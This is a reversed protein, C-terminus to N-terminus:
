ARVFSEPQSEGSHQRLNCHVHFYSIYPWTFIPSESREWGWQCGTTSILEWETGERHEGEWDWHGATPLRPPLLHHRFYNLVRWCHLLGPNLEWKRPTQCTFSCIPPRQGEREHGIEGYGQRQRGERERKNGKRSGEWWRKEKRREEEGEWIFCILFFFVYQAPGLEEIVRSCEQSDEWGWCSPKLFIM